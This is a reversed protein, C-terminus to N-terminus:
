MATYRTSLFLFLLFKLIYFSVEFRRLEVQALDFLVGSPKSVRRKSGGTDFGLPYKSSIDATRSRIEEPYWIDMSDKTNSNASSMLKDYIRKWGCGDALIWKPNLPFTFGQDVKEELIELLGSVDTYRWPVGSFLDSIVLLEDDLEQPFGYNVTM